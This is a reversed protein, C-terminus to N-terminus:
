SNGSISVKSGTTELADLCCAAVERVDRPEKKNHAMDKIVSIFQKREFNELCDCESIARLIDKKCKSKSGPRINILANLLIQVSGNKTCDCALKYNDVM